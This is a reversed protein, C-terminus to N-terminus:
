DSRSLEGEPSRRTMEMEWRGASAPPAPSRPRRHDTEIKRNPVGIQDPPSPAILNTQRPETLILRASRPRTSETPRPSADARNRTIRM